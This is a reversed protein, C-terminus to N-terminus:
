QPTSRRRSLRRGPIGSPYALASLRVTPSVAPPVYRPVPQRHVRYGQNSLARPPSVSVSHQPILAAHAEALKVQARREADGTFGVKQSRVFKPIRSSVLQSAPLRREYSRSLSPRSPESTVLKLVDALLRPLAGVGERAGKVVSTNALRGSALRMSQSIRASTAPAAVSALQGVSMITLAPGVLNENIATIAEVVTPPANVRAQANKVAIFFDVETLEPHRERLIERTVPDSLNEPSRLGARLDVQAPSLGRPAFSEALTPEFSRIFRGVSSGQRELTGAGCIRVLHDILDEREVGELRLLGLANLIAFLNDSYSPAFGAGGGGIFGVQVEIDFCFTSRNAYTLSTDLLTTTSALGTVMEIKDRSGNYVWGVPRALFRWSGAIACAVGCPTASDSTDPLAGHAYWMHRAHWHM